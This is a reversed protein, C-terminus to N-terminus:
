HVRRARGAWNYAELLGHCNVRLYAVRDVKPVGLRLLATSLRDARENVERYTFRDEGCVIGV